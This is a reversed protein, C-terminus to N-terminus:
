GARRGRRAVRTRDLPQVHAVPEHDTGALLDGGVAHDLVAREATSRDRSVPSGTGTSTPGPSATTPEVTLAEPRRTTRAVRTPASVCSACIVRRTSSAWRVLAGTSRSASRMEATKTGTTSTIASSVNTPQSTNLPSGSAAKVAATATSIMAQGQASPSAVGVARITPVPRPAWSPM